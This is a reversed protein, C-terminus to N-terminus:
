MSGTHLQTKHKKGDPPISSVPCLPVIIKLYNMILACSRGVDGNPCFFIYQKNKAVTRLANVKDNSIVELRASPALTNSKM